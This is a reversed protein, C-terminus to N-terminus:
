KNLVFIYMSDFYSLNDLLEPSSLKWVFSFSLFFQKSEEASISFLQTYLFSHQFRNSSFTCLQKKFKRESKIKTMNGRKVNKELEFSHKLILHLMFILQFSLPQRLDILVPGLKVCNNVLMKKIEKKTFFIEYHLINEHYTSTFITQNMLPFIFNTKGNSEIITILPPQVTKYFFSSVILLIGGQVLQIFGVFNSAWLLRTKITYHNSGRDQQGNTKLEIGAESTWEKNYEKGKRWWRAEEKGQSLLWKRSVNKKFAFIKM